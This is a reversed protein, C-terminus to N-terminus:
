HVLMFEGLSAPADDDSSSLVMCPAPVGARGAARIVAAEAGQGVQGPVGGSRERQLYLTPHDPTAAIRWTTRSAGGSLRELSPAERTEYRDRLARGLADRWGSEDHTPESM